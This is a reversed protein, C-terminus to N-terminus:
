SFRNLGPKFQPYVHGPKKPMADLPNPKGAEVAKRVMNIVAPDTYFDPDTRLYGDNGTVQLDGIYKVNAAAAAQAKETEPDPKVQSRAADPVGPVDVGTKEEIFKEIEDAVAVIGDIAASAAKGLWGLVLLTAWHKMFAKGSDTSEAWTLFAATALKRGPGGAFTKDLAWGFVRPIVGVAGVVPVLQIVRGFGNIFKGLFGTSLLIGATAKGLLQNRTDKAENLAEEASMGGFMNDAGVEGNSKAAEQVEKLDAEVALISIWYDFVYYGVGLLTLINDWSVISKARQALKAADAGAKARKLVMEAREAGKLGKLSYKYQGFINKANRADRAAKAAKLDKGRKYGKYAKSVYDAAKTVGPIFGLNLENVQQESLIEYVKM